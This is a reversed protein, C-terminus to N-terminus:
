VTTNTISTTTTTTTPPPFSILINGPHLDGHTFNDEFLMKIFTSCGVQAIYKRNDQSLFSSIILNREEEGMCSSAMLPSLSSSSSSSSTTPSSSSSSMYLDHFVRGDKNNKCVEDGENIASRGDNHLNPKIRRRRIHSLCEALTLGHEYTEVLVDTSCFKSIPKPFYVSTADDRDNIKFNKRFARLNRAEVRLDLQKEM